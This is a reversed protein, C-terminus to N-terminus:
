WTGVFGLHEDMWRKETQKEDKTLPRVFFDHLDEIAQFCRETYREVGGESAGAVRAIDELSAGNGYRGMRYLTVALQIQVPTQPNNSWNKFVDHDHILNLLTDFVEPSVRLM